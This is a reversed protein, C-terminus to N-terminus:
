WATPETSRPWPHSPSNTIQPHLPIRYMPSKTCTLFTNNWFHTWNLLLDRHATTLDKRLADQRLTRAVDLVQVVVVMGPVPSPLCSPLLAPGTTTVTGWEKGKSM